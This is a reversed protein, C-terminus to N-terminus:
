WESDDDHYVDLRMLRAVGQEIFPIEAETMGEDGEEAEFEEIDGISAAETDPVDLDGTSIAHLDEGITEGLIRGVEDITAQEDGERDRSQTSTTGDRSTSNASSPPAKRKRNRPVTMQKKLTDQGKKWERLKKQLEAKTENDDYDLELTTSYERLDAQSANSLYKRGNGWPQNVLRTVPAPPQRPLPPLEFPTEM